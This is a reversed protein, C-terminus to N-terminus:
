AQAPRRERQVALIVHTTTEAIARQPHARGADSLLRWVARPMRTRPAGITRKEEETLPELENYILMTSSIGSPWLQEFLGALDDISDARFFGLQEVASQVFPRLDFPAQGFRVETM